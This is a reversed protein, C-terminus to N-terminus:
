LYIYPPMSMVYVSFIFIRGNNPSQAFVTDWLAPLPYKERLTLGNVFRHRPMVM